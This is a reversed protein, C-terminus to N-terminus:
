GGDSTVTFLDGPDGAALTLSAADAARTATSSTTAIYSSAAQGTEFQAGWLHLTKGNAAAWSPDGTTSNVTNGTAAGVMYANVYPNAQPVKGVVTCRYWGDALAEISQALI